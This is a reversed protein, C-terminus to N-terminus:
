KIILDNWSDNPVLSIYTTGPNLVIEEGTVGNIFSTLGAEETKSWKIPFAYGETVFYGDGSGICNYIMYGHEDLQAFTCSQLILNKFTTVKNNDMVDVHAKGYCSYEYLKTKANYTLTSKTHAFPLQVTDAKKSFDTGSLDVTKGEAAFKFHEGPYYSNYEESIKADSMRKILGDFSKGTNPNKYGESTVYETFESAKGNSFRAFGGSLHSTYKKAVWQDIYYPGGDHILVANYEAALMFNTPRVSRISGFQKINKWDKVICMLRTIRGNATSNMIEYVIDASNIGYHDYATTENDVMIAMPRQNQLEENIYLGTLESRYKGEKTVVEVSEEVSEAASEEASEKSTETETGAAEASSSEVTETKSEDAAVTSMPIPELTAVPIDEEGCASMITAACLLSLMVLLKKKM